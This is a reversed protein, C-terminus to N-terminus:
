FRGCLRAWPRSCSNRTGRELDSLYNRKMGLRPLGHGGASLGAHKRTEQPVNEGLLQVLDM